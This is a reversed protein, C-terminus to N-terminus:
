ERRVETFDTHPGSGGKKAAVELHEGTHEGGVLAM